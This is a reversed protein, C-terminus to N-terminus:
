STPELAMVCGARALEDFIRANEVGHFSACPNIQM